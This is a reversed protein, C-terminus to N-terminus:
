VHQTRAHYTTPKPGNEDNKLCQKLNVAVAITLDDIYKSYNVGMSMRKRMPKAIHEGINMSQNYGFFNILILFIFCGLIYFFVTAAMLGTITQSLLILFAIEKPSRARSM